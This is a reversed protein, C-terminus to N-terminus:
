SDCFCLTPPVALAFWGSGCCVPLVRLLTCGGVPSLRVPMGVCVVEVAVSCAIGGSGELASLVSAARSKSGQGEPVWRMVYHHPETAHVLMCICMYVCGLWCVCDTLLLCLSTKPASREDTAWAAVKVQCECFGHFSLVHASLLCTLTHHAAARIRGM